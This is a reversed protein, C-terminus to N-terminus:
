LWSWDKSFACYTTHFDTDKIPPEMYWKHLVPPSVVFLHMGVIITDIWSERLGFDVQILKMLLDGFCQLLNARPLFVDVVLYAHYSSHHIRVSYSAKCNSWKMWSKLFDCSSSASTFPFYSWPLPPTVLRARSSACIDSSSSDTLASISWRPVLMVSAAGRTLILCASVRKFASLVCISIRRPTTLWEWLLFMRSVHEAVHVFVHLNLM